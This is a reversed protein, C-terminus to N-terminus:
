EYKEKKLIAKKSYPKKMETVRLRDLKSVTIFELYNQLMLTVYYNTKYMPPLSYQVDLIKYKKLNVDMREEFENLIEKEIKALHDPDVNDLHKFDRYKRLVDNMMPPAIIDMSLIITENVPKDGQFSFNFSKLWPYIQDWVEQPIWGYDFGEIESYISAKANQYTEWEPSINLAYVSRETMNFSFLIISGLHKDDSEPDRRRIRIELIQENDKSIFKCININFDDVITTAFKATNGQKVGIPKVEFGNAWEYLDQFTKM